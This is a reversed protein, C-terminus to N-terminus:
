RAAAARVIADEVDAGIRRPNSRPRRSRPEFAAGGEVRYRAVLKQV